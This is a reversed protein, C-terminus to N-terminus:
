DGWSDEDSASLGRPLCTSCWSTPRPVGIPRGVTLRAYGLLFRSSDDTERTAHIDFSSNNPSCTTRIDSDSVDLHHDSWLDKCRPLDLRMPCLNVALRQLV